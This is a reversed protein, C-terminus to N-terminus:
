YNFIAEDYYQKEWTRSQAMVDDSVLFHYWEPADDDWTADLHYWHGELKVMNWAHGGYEDDALFEPLIEGIIYRSELGARELLMHLSIAYAQCVGEGHLLFGMPSHALNTGLDKYTMRDMVYQYLTEVKEYDTMNNLELSAILEDMKAGIQEMEYRQTTFEHYIDIFIGGDVREVSYTYWLLTASIEDDTNMLKKYLAEMEVLPMKDNKYYFAAIKDHDRLQEEVAQLFEDLTEAIRMEGYAYAIYNENQFLENITKGKADRFSEIVEVKELNYAYRLESLDASAVYPEVEIVPGAKETYCGALILVPIFWLWKKM